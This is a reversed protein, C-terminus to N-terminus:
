GRPREVPEAADQHGTVEPVVAAPVPAPAVPSQWTPEVRVPRARAQESVKQAVQQRDAYEFRDQDALIAPGQSKLWGTVYGAMRHNDVLEVGRDGYVRYKPTIEARIAEILGYIKAAGVKLATKSKGLATAAFRDQELSLHLAKAAAKPYVTGTNYAAYTLAAQQSPNLRSFAQPARSTNVAERAIAQYDDKVIRVLAVASSMPIDMARIKKKDKGTVLLKVQDDSLGASLLDQKVRDVGYVATRMKMSYGGPLNVTNRDAGAGPFYPNKPLDEVALVLSVYPDYDHVARACAMREVAGECLRRIENIDRQLPTLAAVAPADPIAVEAQPQEQVPAPEIQGTVERKELVPDPAATESAESALEGFDVSPVGVAPLNVRAAAEIVASGASEVADGVALLGSRAMGLRELATDRLAEMNVPAIDLAMAQIQALQAQTQAAVESARDRDVGTVMSLSVAAAFAFMGTVKAFRVSGRSAASMPGSVRVKASKASLTSRIEDPDIEIAPGSARYMPPEIERSTGGPGYVERAQLDMRPVDLQPEFRM